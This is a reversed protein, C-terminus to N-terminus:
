EPFAISEAGPDVRVRDGIPVPVTPETHGFDLDFVIPADPNYERVTRRVSARQRERFQERAEPGPDHEHNRTQPRGVLVAGFRELLGREGLGTLLWRVEDEDPKEESTEIALVDGAVAAPDPIARDGAALWSLVSLCGGWLRGSVATEDPADWQWGPNPEYEATADAYDDSAWDVSDDTWEEAPEIEGVAEEFLARRLYRETYEPLYGPTAVENLLTGGYYSVVGCRWLYSALCTNDSTGYFRTPNERLIEPDLHKLVRVQDDGGITAFVASVDPARFADHVDRAREEPHDFLYEIGKEATPYVVPNVEFIERLRQVALDLVDPYLDALGSSPAIVAVDDGPEVPDPRVFSDPRTADTGGTM